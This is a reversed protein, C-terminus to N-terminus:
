KTKEKTKFVKAAKEIVSKDFIIVHDEMPDCVEVLKGHERVYSLGTRTFIDRAKGFASIRIGIEALKDFTYIIYKFAYVPMTISKDLNTVMMRSLQELRQTIWLKWPVGHKGERDWNFVYSFDYEHLYTEGKKIKIKRSLYRNVEEPPVTPGLGLQEQALIQLAYLQGIPTHLHRPAFSSLSSMFGGGEDKRQIVYNDKEKEISGSYIQTIFRMAYLKALSGPYKVYGSKMKELLMIAIDRAASEFDHILHRAKAKLASKSMDVLDDYLTWLVDTNGTRWYQQQALDM